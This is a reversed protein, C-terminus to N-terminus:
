AWIVEGKRIFFHSKCGVMRHISPTITIKKEYISYKWFPLYEDMLNMHLLSKCGCPCITVMQWFYGNEGVLYITKNKPYEPIDNVFEYTYLTKKSQKENKFFLLFWNLLKNILLM